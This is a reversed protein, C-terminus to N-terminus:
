FNWDVEMSVESMHRALDEDVSSDKPVNALSTLPTVPHFAEPLVETSKKRLSKFCQHELMQCASPRQASNKELCLSALHHLQPSFTREFFIHNAKEEPTRKRGEEDVEDMSNDDIIFEGCTSSDALMPKTGNIKELLMQTVPMDAFPAQGNALECAMIGMSYIDSKTDYGALNQALIEPSFWQLCDVAHQPYDYVVHLKEGGTVTSFANHLGTLCVLGSGSILVHSAKVGRHIIGRSHLYVLAKFVDRLIYIIAIEPLGATHFAQMLDRCSGFGMSPMVTWLEHQHIFSCYHPLIHEHQLQRTLVIENQIYAYEQDWNELNVRKIAVQTSSGSHCALHITSAGKHGKGIVTHLTYASGLNDFQVNVVESGCSENVTSMTVTVKHDSSNLGGMLPSTANREFPKRAPPSESFHSKSCACHLLSM